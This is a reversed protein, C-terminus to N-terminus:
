LLREPSWGGGGACPIERFARIARLSLEGCLHMGVLYCPTSAPLAAVRCRLADVFADSLVDLRLYRVGGVGSGASCRCLRLRLRSSCM